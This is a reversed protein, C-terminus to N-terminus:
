NSGGNAGYINQEITIPVRSRIRRNTDPYRTPDDSCRPRHLDRNAWSWCQQCYNFAAIISIDVSKFRWKGDRAFGQPIGPFGQPIGPSDRPIGPSNGTIGCHIGDM